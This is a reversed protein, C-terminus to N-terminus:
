NDMHRRFYYTKLKSKLVFTYQLQLELQCVTRIMATETNPNLIKCNQEYDTRTFTYNIWLNDIVVFDTSADCKMLALRVLLLNLFRSTLTSGHLDSLGLWQPPHRWRPVPNQGRLRGRTMLLIASGLGRAEHHGWIWWVTLAWTTEFRVM